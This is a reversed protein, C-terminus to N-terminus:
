CNSIGGLRFLLRAVQKELGASKRKLHLNKKGPAPIEVGALIRDNAQNETFALIKYIRRIKQLCLSKM